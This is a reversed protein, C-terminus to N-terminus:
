KNDQLAKITDDLAKEYCECKQPSDNFRCIHGTFDQKKLKVIEVAEDIGAKKGREYGDKDGAQHAYRVIYEVWNETELFKPKMKTCHEVMEEIRPTM